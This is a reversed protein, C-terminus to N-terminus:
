GILKNISTYANFNDLTKKLPRIFSFGINTWNIPIHETKATVVEAMLPKAIPKATVPTNIPDLTTTENSRFPIGSFIRIGANTTIIAVKTVM